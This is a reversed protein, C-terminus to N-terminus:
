WERIESVFRMTPDTERAHESRETARPFSLNARLAPWSICITRNTRALPLGTLCLYVFNGTIYRIYFLWVCEM